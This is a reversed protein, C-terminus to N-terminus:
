SAQSSQPDNNGSPWGEYARLTISYQLAALVKLVNQLGVSRDARELDRLCFLSVGALDALQRQTLKKHKRILRIGAGLRAPTTMGFLSTLESQSHM